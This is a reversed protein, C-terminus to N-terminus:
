ADAGAVQLTGGSSNDTGGETFAAALACFKVQGPWGEADGSIGDLALTATTRLPDVTGGARSTFTADFQDLRASRGDAAHRDGADPASAFVERSYRVGDAM